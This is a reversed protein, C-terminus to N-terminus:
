EEVIIATEQEFPGGLSPYDSLMDAGGLPQNQGQHCTACNIKPVDGLPGLRHPPFESTLPELYDLNLESIMRLGYWAIPRNPTSESWSAFSRTNHCYTCNVGLAQSMHVMLAYTQETEQISVDFGEPLMTPAEVRINDDGLVLPSFPDYPLSTLGVSPEAANQGGRYGAMGTAQAPDEPIFWIEAPVPEGRHCTYCTVGAPSVHDAWNMNISQNMEIMRRSVIKTYIDDSAFSDDTHCYGCGEEPSVWETMATMIRLFEEENLDGLVQVNEYIESVPTGGPTAPPLPEPIENMVQQQAWERANDIQGMATGRYGDQQAVVPPRDWDGLFVGGVNILVLVGGLVLSLLFVIKM